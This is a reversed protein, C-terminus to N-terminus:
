GRDMEGTRKEGRAEDEDRTRAREEDGDGEARWLM